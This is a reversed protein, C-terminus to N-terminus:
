SVSALWQIEHDKLMDTELVIPVNKGKGIRVVEELSKVPITGNFGFIPAHRDVCCGNAVKSNNMHIIALAGTGFLSEFTDFYARVAEPTSMDVGTAWIHATDVCIGLRAKEEDSFRNYFAALEALKCLLETGQGAPTEIILKVCGASGILPELIRKVTNFMRVTGDERPLKLAKGVHLVCGIAGIKDAIQLEKAMHEVVKDNAADDGAL